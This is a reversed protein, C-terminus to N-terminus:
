YMFLFMCTIASMDDAIDVKADVWIKSTAWTAAADCLVLQGAM